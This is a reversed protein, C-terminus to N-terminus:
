VSENIVFIMESNFQMEKIADVHHRVELDTQLGDGGLVWKTDTLCVLLNGKQDDTLTGALCCLFHPATRLKNECSWGGVLFIDFILHTYARAEVM